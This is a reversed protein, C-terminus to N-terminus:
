FKATINRKSMNVRIVAADISNKFILHQVLVNGTQGIRHARDAAQVNEADVWSSEAFVVRTAKTLTLGTGMAQINGIIVRPGSDSQFRAVYEHRMDMPTEGTIVLPSFCALETELRAITMKHIAFVIVSEKSTELFERLFEAAIPAKFEGLERRYTALQGNEALQAKMIDEPSFEKLMRKEFARVSPPSDDGLFVLEETKPPLQTLVTEKRIRLMFNEKVRRSLEEVNSAGTFDWGWPGQHGACYKFGYKFFDMGDISEPALKSLIPYLEMPRNLMPTGSMPYVRTFDRWLGQPGFIVKTRKAKANKFRQAEDVILVTEEAECIHRSIAALTKGKVLMSDPIFLVQAKKVGWKLFEAEFNLRLFPPCVVVVRAGPLSNCIMAAVITKGLGPDLALYARNRALAFLLADMQFRHPKLEVPHLNLKEIIPTPLKQIKFSDIAKLACPKAHDRLKAAANVNETFWIKEVPNWRFGAERPRHREDFTVRAYFIGDRHTLIM